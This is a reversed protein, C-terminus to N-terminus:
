SIHIDCCCAPFHRGFRPSPDFATQLKELFDDLNPWGMTGLRAPVAILDQTSGSINTLTFFSYMETGIQEALEEQWMISLM